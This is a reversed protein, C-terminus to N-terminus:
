WWKGLWQWQIQLLYADLIVTFLYALYVHIYGDVECSINSPKIQQFFTEAKATTLMSWSYCALNRKERCDSLYILKWNLECLKNKVSSYGPTVSSTSWSM